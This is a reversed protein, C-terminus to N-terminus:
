WSEVFSGILLQQETTDSWLSNAYLCLQVLIGGFKKHLQHWLSGEPFWETWNHLVNNYKVSETGCREFEIKEEKM